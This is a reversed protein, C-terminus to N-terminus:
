SDCVALASVFISPCRGEGQDRDRRLSAGYRDVRDTASKKENEHDDVWGGRRGM